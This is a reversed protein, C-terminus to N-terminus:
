SSSKILINIDTKEYEEVYQLIINELNFILDFHQFNQYQDVKFYVKKQITSYIPMILAKLVDINESYEKINIKLISLISNSIYEFLVKTPHNLTYFLLKEKFKEMIFDSSYVFHINELYNFQTYNNERILLNHINKNFLDNLYEDDSENKFSLSELYKEKINIVIQNINNVGNEKNEVYFKVINKDHYDFPKTLNEGDKNKENIYILYPHYFDFYLSPFIIKICDKKSNELISKTSYKHNNRYNETIPQIIILDLTELINSYFYELEDEEMIYIPKVQIYKYNKSFFDNSNLYKSLPEAQCNGIVTYNKIM